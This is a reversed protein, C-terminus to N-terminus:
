WLPPGPPRVPNRAEGGGGIAVPLHERKAAMDALSVRPVVYVVRVAGVVQWILGGRLDVPDDATADREPGDGGRCEVGRHAVIHNPPQVEQGILPRDLLLELENRLVPDVVRVEAPFVGAMVRDDTLVVVLVGVPLPGEGDCELVGRPLPLLLQHRHGGFPDNGRAPLIEEGWRDMRELVHQGLWSALVLRNKTRVTYHLSCRRNLLLLSKCSKWASRVPATSRAPM